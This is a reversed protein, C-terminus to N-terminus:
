GRIPQFIVTELNVCDKFKENPVIRVKVILTTINTPIDNEKNEETLEYITAGGQLDEIEKELITQNQGM